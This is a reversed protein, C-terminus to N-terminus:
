EIKQKRSRRHPDLLEQISDGVLNFGLVTLAVALGPFFSMWWAVRLFPQANQLMYGWSINNPDGLGLFALSSEILIFQGILLSTHV